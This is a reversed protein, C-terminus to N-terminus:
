RVVGMGRGDVRDTNELLFWHNDMGNRWDGRLAVNEVSGM